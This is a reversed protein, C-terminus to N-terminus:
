VSMLILRAAITVFTSSQKTLQVEECHCTVGCLRSRKVTMVFGSLATTIWFHVTVAAFFQIAEDTMGGRLSSKRSPSFCLWTAMVAFGTIVIVWWVRDKKASLYCFQHDIRTRIQNATKFQGITM